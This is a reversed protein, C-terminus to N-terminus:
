RRRARALAAAGVPAVLLMAAAAAAAAAAGAGAGGTAGLAGCGVLEKPAADGYAPDQYLYILGAKDDPGLALDRAVRSYGMIARYNTHAHGLGLCHGLEHTITYVLDRVAVKHDAISIDCDAITSKDDDDVQPKAFAASSINSSKQTVISFVKDKDNLSANADVTDSLALKVYSGPVSSWISMADILLQKMLTTDDLDQYAGDRYKDKEDMGPAKGDWIFTVTPSAPSVPLTAKTSSLLVFGCTWPTTAAVAALGLLARARRPLRPLM